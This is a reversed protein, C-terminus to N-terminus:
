ALYRLCAAVVQWFNQTLLNIDESTVNDIHLGVTVVTRSGTEAAIKLAADRALADDKHGLMCLVSCSASTSGDNRLSPRPEAVAVAGIHPLVGGGINLSIDNGCLTLVGQMCYPAQGASFSKAEM